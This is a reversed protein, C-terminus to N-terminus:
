LLAEISYPTQSGRLRFAPSRAPLIHRPAQLNGLGCSNGVTALYLFPRLPGAQLAGTLTPLLANCARLYKIFRGMILWIMEM